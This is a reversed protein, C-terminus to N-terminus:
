KRRKRQFLPVNPTSTKVYMQDRDETSVNEMGLIHEDRFIARMVQANKEEIAQKDEDYWEQRIKMLVLHETGGSESVGAVVKVHSGLDANGSISRDTAVNQQNLTVEKADVFDYGGQVARPVNSELFWYLHFGPIPPVELKRSPVSMPIRKREREQVALSPTNLPETM